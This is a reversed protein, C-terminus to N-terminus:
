KLIFFSILTYYKLALICKQASYLSRFLYSFDKIRIWIIARSVVFLTSLQSGVYYVTGPFSNKNVWQQFAGIAYVWYGNTCSSSLFTNQYYNNTLVLSSFCDNWTNNIAYYEINSYEATGVRVNLPSISQKWRNFGDHGPYELTFEYFNDYRNIKPLYELISYKNKNISFLVESQTSFFNSDTSNHDFIKLWKANYEEKLAYSFEM